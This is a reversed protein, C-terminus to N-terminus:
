LPRGFKDAGVPSVIKACTPCRVASQHEWQHGESCEFPTRVSFDSHNHFEGQEDFFQVGNDNRLIQKKGEVVRSPIGAAECTACKM